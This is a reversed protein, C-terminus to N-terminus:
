FIEPDSEIFPQAPKAGASGTCILGFSMLLNLFCICPTLHGSVVWVGELTLKEAKKLGSDSLVPWHISCSVSYSHTIYLFTDVTMFYLWSQPAQLKSQEVMNAGRVSIKTCQLQQVGPQKRSWFSVKVHKIITSQYFSSYIWDFKM